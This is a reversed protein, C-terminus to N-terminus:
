DVVYGMERLTPGARDIFAELVEPPMEDRYSGVEGRRFFPKSRDWDPHYITGFRQELGRMRDISANSLARELRATEREIGLFECLRKLERVGDALLDEYRITIMSAGYPNAMWAQVHEHWKCPDRTGRVMDLFDVNDAGRMVTLHHFLSVMVDRGDRLLYVVRRYNPRPLEHTKFFMTPAYRVYFRDRHTDPSLMYVLRSPALRVDVGFVAGAVLFRFWTNGSKMAGAVVIDQPSIHTAPSLHTGAVRADSERPQSRHFSVRAHEALRRAPFRVSDNLARRVPSPVFPKIRPILGRSM